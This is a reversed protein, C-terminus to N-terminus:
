PSMCGHARHLRVSPKSCSRSHHVHGAVQLRQREPLGATVKELDLKSVLDRLERPYSLADEAYDYDRRSDFGSLKDAINGVKDDINRILDARDSDSDAVALRGIVALAIVMMAATTRRM